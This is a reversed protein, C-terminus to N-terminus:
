QFINPMNVAMCLSIICYIAFHQRKIYKQQCNQTLEACKTRYPSFVLKEYTVDIKKKAKQKKKTKWVDM